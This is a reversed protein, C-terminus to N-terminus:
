SDQGSVWSDQGSVGFTRDPTGLEGTRLVWSDQGSVRVTRYLPDLQGIRLNWSGQGSHSM